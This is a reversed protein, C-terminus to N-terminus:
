LAPTGEQSKVPSHVLSFHASCDVAHKLSRQIDNYNIYVKFLECNFEILDISCRHSIESPFALCKNTMNNFGCFM